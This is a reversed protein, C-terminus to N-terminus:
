SKGPLILAREMLSCLHMNKSRGKTDPYWRNLDNFQDMCNHCPVIVIQAGTETVQDVKRRGKLRRKENHEPMAMGGGGAGCCYNRDGCPNMDAFNKVFSKILERAEEFMGEKRAANCPDHYTVVETVAGPDLILRGEKVLDNLLQIIHRIPIERGKWYTRSGWRMSRYAHGCETVIFKKCGLRDFEEWIPMSIELFDATRGTFLAINTADWRKTSITYDIGAAYFIKLTKHLEQPYFKIDRANFGYFYRAGERDLPISYGPDGLEDRLEDEIWRLTEEYETQDVNMQNGSQKHEEAITQLYGPMRDKPTLGRLSRVIAPLNVGMPCEFSCRECMTCYWIFPDSWAQEEMGLSIKRLFKRPDQNEHLDSFVCGSTCMGCVLCQTFDYGGVLKAVEDRFAPNLKSVRYPEM